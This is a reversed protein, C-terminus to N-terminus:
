SLKGFNVDGKSFDILKVSKYDSLRNCIFLNTRIINGDSDFEPILVQRQLHEKSTFSKSYEERFLVLYAKIPMIKSFSKSEEKKKNTEHLRFDFLV